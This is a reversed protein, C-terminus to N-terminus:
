ALTHRLLDQVTMPRTPDSLRLHPRGDPGTVETGVEHRRDRAPVELGSRHDAAAGGRGLQMLAASVIPQDDLLHPLDFRAKMPDPQAPDRKGQVNLWAIKGRRAVLMVAGPVLGSEIHQRTVEELRKLQVSSLGVEEPSAAMPVPTEAHAFGAVCVLTAAFVVAKMSKGRM